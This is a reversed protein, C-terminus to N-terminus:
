WHLGKLRFKTIVGKTMLTKDDVLRSNQVARRKQLTKKLNIMNWLLAHFFTIAYPNLGFPLRGKLRFLSLFTMLALGKPFHMMISRFSYNKLVMMIRNRRSFYLARYMKSDLRTSVEKHYVKSKPSAVVRWGRTWMRWCLDCDEYYWFFDEDFGEVEDLAKKRAVFAACDVSFVERIKDFQGLDEELYGLKFGLGYHDMMFGIMQLCKTDDAYLLKCTVAGIDPNREMIRIPQNLWDKDVVVDVNLFAVYKGSAVKLGSNYGGALGLNKSNKVIKLRQNSGFRQQAVEISRDTSANDVLIVEYNLYTSKFISNLCDTLYDM